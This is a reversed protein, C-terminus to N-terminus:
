AKKKKKGEGSGEQGEEAGVETEDQGAADAVLPQAAKRKRKEGGKKKTPCALAALADAEAVVKKFEPSKMMALFEDLRSDFGWGDFTLVNRQGRHATSKMKFEVILDDEDM